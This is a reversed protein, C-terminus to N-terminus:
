LKGEGKLKDVKHTIYSNGHLDQKYHEYEEFFREMEIEDVPTGAEIRSLLSVVYNKTSEMDVQDIRKGLEKIDTKLSDVNEKFTSRIWEKLKKIIWGIGTLLSVLFAVATGIQSITINEM